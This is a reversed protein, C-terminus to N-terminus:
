EPATKKSSESVATPPTLVPASEEATWPGGMIYELEAAAVQIDRFAQARQEEFELLTQVTSLVDLFGADAGGSAYAGELTEYTQKIKPLLNDDYLRLRRYGDEIGYIALKAAGELTITTKRKEHEAAKKRHEAERVGAKVKSRWIPLNMSVSVMVEDKMKENDLMNELEVFSNLDMAGQLATEVGDRQAASVASAAARARAIVTGGPPIAPLMPVRPNAIRLSSDLADLVASTRPENRVDKMDTYSIGFTFDPWGKKRALTVAEARGSIGADMGSLAPNAIRIRALV